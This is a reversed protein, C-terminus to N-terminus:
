LNKGRFICWFDDSLNRDTLYAYPMTFYGKDGWNVGWSNRVLFRQTTDNYGVCTVAHGGLLSEDPTPMNVIGTQAVQDTEFNSYVSFGFVFPYGNNLCHLMDSLTNLRYYDKIKHKSAEIYCKHGPQVAFNQINYPYCVESCVGLKALTKIGDRLRAGSDISVTNEVIREDYYIFLRSLEIYPVKDKKELFELAGALANGTCSGLAGQDFIPSDNSRLDIIPIPSVPVVDLKTASVALREEEIKKRLDSYQYDRHDPIDPNWGYSSIYRHRTSSLRSRIDTMNPRRINVNVDNM